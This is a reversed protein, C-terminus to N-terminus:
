PNSQKERQTTLQTNYDKKINWNGCTTRKRKMLVDIASEKFIVCGKKRTLIHEKLITEQLRSITKKHTHTLRVLKRQTLQEDMWKIRDQMYKKHNEKRTNNMQEKRTAWRCNSPEYNGDNNIRDISHEKSPKEGMDAVFNRFGIIRKQWRLCVKIGRGGYYRYATNNKNECRSIMSKWTSYLPHKGNQEM